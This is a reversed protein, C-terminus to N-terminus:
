NKRVTGYGNRELLLLPNKQGSLDSLYIIVVKKSNTFCFKIRIFIVYLFDTLEGDRLGDVNGGTDIPITYSGYAFRAECWGSNCFFKLSLKGFLLVM